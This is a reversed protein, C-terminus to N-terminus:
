RRRRPRRRREIEIGIAAADSYRDLKEVRVHVAETRADDLCAEAIEEALTELLRPRREACLRRIAPVVHRYDVVRAPDDDLPREPAVELEANIRLRQAKAREREGVGIHAALTLDRLVIRQRTTESAPPKGGAKARGGAPAKARAAM